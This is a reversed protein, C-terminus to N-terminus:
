SDASAPWLLQICLGKGGPGDDLSIELQHRDCIEQVIALGLGTGQDGSGSGRYFREFVRAREDRPIGPGNDIVCLRARGDHKDVRM